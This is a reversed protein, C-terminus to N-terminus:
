PEPRTRAAKIRRTGSRGARTRRTWSQRAGVRRLCGRGRRVRGDEGEVIAQPDIDDLLVRRGERGHLFRMRLGNLEEMALRLAVDDRWPM